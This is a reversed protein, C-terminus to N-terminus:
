PVGEAWQAPTPGPEFPDGFHRTERAAKADLFKVISVTYSPRGDDNLVYETM